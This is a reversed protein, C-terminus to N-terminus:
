CFQLLFGKRVQCVRGLGTGFLSGTEEDDVSGGLGRGNSSIDGTEVVGVGVSGGEVVLGGNNLSIDALDSIM